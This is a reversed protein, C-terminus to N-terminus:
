ISENGVAQLAYFDQIDVMALINAQWLKKKRVTRAILANLKDFQYSFNHMRNRNHCTQLRILVTKFIIAFLGITCPVIYNGVKAM